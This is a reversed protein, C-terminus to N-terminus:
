GFMDLPWDVRIAQLFQQYTLAIDISIRKKRSTLGGTIRVMDQPIGLSKAIFKILERNAKGKEPQNKLYCKLKGSRNMVWGLRGSGPVVTVNIAFGM